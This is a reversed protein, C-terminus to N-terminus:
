VIELDLEAENSISDVIDIRKMRNKEAKTAKM